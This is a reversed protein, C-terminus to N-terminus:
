TMTHLCKRWKGHMKENTPNGEKGTKQSINIVSNIKSKHRYIKGSSRKEKKMKKKEKRM